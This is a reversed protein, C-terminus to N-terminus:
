SENGGRGCYPCREGRAVSLLGEVVRPDPDAPATVSRSSVHRAVSEGLEVAQPTDPGPQLDVVEALAAAVDEELNSM